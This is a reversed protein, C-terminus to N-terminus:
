KGGKPEEEKPQELLDPRIKELLADIKLEIRDIQEYTTRDM